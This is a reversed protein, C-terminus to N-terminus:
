RAHSIIKLLNVFERFNLFLIVPVKSLESPTGPRTGWSLWWEFQWAPGTVWGPGGTMRLSPKCLWEEEEEQSRLLPPFPPEATRCCLCRRRRSAVARDTQSVRADELLWPEALPPGKGGPWASGGRRRDHRRHGAIRHRPAAPSAHLLHLMSLRLQHHAEGLGRHVSTAQGRALQTTAAPSPFSCLIDIRGGHSSAPPL